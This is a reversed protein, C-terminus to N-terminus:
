TRRRPDIALLVVDTAANLAVFLLGLSLATGQLMPVDRGEIAHALAHGIGPWAFLEEIVVVGEVLLAFNVALYAVLPVAANRPVHRQVAQVRSLGKLRAFAFFPSNTAAVVGDRAIRASAAALVMGLSAAPLLLNSWDDFGAVPLWGLTAAFVVMLLLGLVFSPVARLAAAAVMGARDAVGGPWLGALAGLVPGVVLAFGLAGLALILTAGLQHTIEQWVPAGSIQSVGLDGTLTRGIWELLQTLAPRDLGLEARVAEAAAANVRDDGYRRQAIQLAQDGPLLQVLIFCILSVVIAVTLAQILRRGLARIVAVM